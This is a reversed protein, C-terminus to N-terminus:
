RPEVRARLEAVLAEAADARVQETNARRLAADREKWREDARRMLVANSRFANEALCMLGWIAGHAEALQQALRERVILSLLDTACQCQPCGRCKVVACAQLYRQARQEMAALGLDAM